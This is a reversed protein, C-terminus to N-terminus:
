GRAHPSFPAPVDDASQHNECCTKHGGIQHVLPLLGHWEKPDASLRTRPVRPSSRLVEGADCITLRKLVCVADRGLACDRVFSYKEKCTGYETHSM